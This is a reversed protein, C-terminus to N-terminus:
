GAGKSLKASPHLAVPLLSSSTRMRKSCTACGGPAAPTSTSQMPACIGIAMPQMTADPELLCFYVMLVTKSLQILCNKIVPNSMPMADWQWEGLLICAHHKIHNEGPGLEQAASTAGTGTSTRLWHHAPLDAAACSPRHEASVCAPLCSAHLALKLEFVRHLM